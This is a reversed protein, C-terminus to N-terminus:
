DFPLLLECLRAPFVCLLVDARRFERCIRFRCHPDRYLRWFANRVFGPTSKFGFKLWNGDLYDLVPASENVPWGWGFNDFHHYDGSVHAFLQRRPVRLHRRVFDLPDVILNHPGFTWLRLAHPVRAVMQTLTGFAIGFSETSVLWFGLFCTSAQFPKSLAPSGPFINRIPKAIPLRRRAKGFM